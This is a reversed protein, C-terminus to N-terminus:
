ICNKAFNGKDQDTWDENPKIMMYDCWEDSGVEPLNDKYKEELELKHQKSLELAVPGQHASLTERLLTEAEEAIGMLQAQEDDSLGEATVSSSAQETAQQEYGSEHYKVLAFGAFITIVSLVMVAILFKTSSLFKIM